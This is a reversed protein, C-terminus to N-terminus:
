LGAARPVDIVAASTVVSAPVPRSLYYGQGIDCGLETLRKWASESEIGEAVVAL